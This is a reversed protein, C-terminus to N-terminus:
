QPNGADATYAMSLYYEKNCRSPPIPTDLFIPIRRSSFASIYPCFQHNRCSKVMIANTVNSYSWKILKGCLSVVLHSGFNWMDLPCRGDERLKTGKRLGDLLPRWLLGTLVSPCQMRLYGTGIVFRGTTISILIDNFSSNVLLDILLSLWLAVKEFDIVKYINIGQGERRSILVCVM